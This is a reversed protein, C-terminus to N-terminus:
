QRILQKAEVVAANVALVLAQVVLVAGDEDHEVINMEWRRHELACVTRELISILACSGIIEGKSADEGEYSSAERLTPVVLVAAVAV